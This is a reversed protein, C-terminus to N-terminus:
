RLRLKGRTGLRSRPKWTTDRQDRDGHPYISNFYLASCKMRLVCVCTQEFNM